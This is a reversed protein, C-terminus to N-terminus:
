YRAESNCGVYRTCLTNDTLLSQSKLEAGVITHTATVGHIDRIANVTPSLLALREVGIIVLFDYEGFVHLVEKVGNLEVLTRYVHREEGPVVNVM